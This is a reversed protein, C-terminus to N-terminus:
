VRRRREHEAIAQDFTVGAPPQYPPPPPQRVQSPLRESWWVGLAVALVAVDEAADESDLAQRFADGAGMAVLRGQGAITMLEALLLARPLQYAGNSVHARAVDGIVCARGRVGRLRLQQLFGHGVGGLDVVRLLADKDALRDAILDPPEGVIREIGLIEHGIESLWHRRREDWLARDNDRVREHRAIRAVASESHPLNVVAGLVLGNHSRPM